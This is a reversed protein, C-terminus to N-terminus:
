HPDQVAGGAIVDVPLGLLKGLKRITSVQRGTGLAFHHTSGSMAWREVFTVTDPRFRARTNTNGTAPIAGSISEGEATVFKFRDDTGLTLGAITLPGNRIKFEVSVGQGFKGHYFSLDRLIPKEDTIAIHGPGDHGILIFDEALDAPHLECFSGGAGLRDMILMAVCNKLDGEGALPVGRGTLLSAGVIIGAILSEYSNGDVGRYYYALGDLRCDAVLRELGVAVRAPWQLAEPTVRSACSDPGPDPFSFADQIGEVMRAAEAPTVADVRKKFDCMEIMDVHMGFTSDFASPDANVDLMGEFPHGMLGIRANRLAHAAGAARVWEEIRRWVGEEHLMGFVVDTPLGARQMAYVVEPMATCNDHVLQHHITATSMNLGATPQLGVLAMYAGCRQAVPLVFGSQVYTSLFCFVLDVRQAAFFEGARRGSEVTDVLGASVVEAGLKTLREEFERRYGDMEERAGPFQSWYRYFGVSFVGIRPTSGPRQFTFM